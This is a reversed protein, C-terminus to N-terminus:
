ARTRVLRPRYATGELKRRLGDYARILTAGQAPRTGTLEAMEMESAPIGLTDLATASAAAVCTYETSQLARGPVNSSGGLTPVPQIMWLGGYVFFAMGVVASCRAMVRQRPLSAAAMAEGVIL